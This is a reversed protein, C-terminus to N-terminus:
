KCINMAGRYQGTDLRPQELPAKSGLSWTSSLGPVNQCDLATTM